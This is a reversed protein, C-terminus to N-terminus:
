PTPVPEEWNRIDDGGGPRGNPGFSCLDYSDPNHVGPYVYQYENGWPDRPVTKLIPRKRGHSDTLSTTALVQLGEETSPYRGTTIEFTDLATQFVGEVHVIATKVGPPRRHPTENRLLCLFALLGFVLTTLLTARLYWGVWSVVSRIGM